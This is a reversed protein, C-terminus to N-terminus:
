HVQERSYELRWNTESVIDFKSRESRRLNGLESESELMRNM